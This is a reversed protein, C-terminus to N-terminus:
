QCVFSSPTKWWVKDDSSLFLKITGKNFLPQNTFIQYIICGASFLDVSMQMEFREKDSLSSDHIISEDIPPYYVPELNEVSISFNEAMETYVLDNIFSTNSKSSHNFEGSIIDIEEKKSNQLRRKTEPSNFFLLEKEEHSELIDDDSSRLHENGETNEITQENSHLKTRFLQFIAEKQEGFM